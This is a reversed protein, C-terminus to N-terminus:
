YRWPYQAKLAARTRRQSRRQELETEGGAGSYFRVPFSGERDARMFDAGCRCIRDNADVCLANEGGIWSTAKNVWNTFSTFQGDPECDPIPLDYRRSAPIQNANSM